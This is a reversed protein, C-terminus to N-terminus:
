VMLGIALLKTRISNALTIVTALDTSAAALTQQAVPATAFFGLKAQASISIDSGYLTLPKYVAGTDDFSLLYGVNALYLIQLGAGTWGTTVTSGTIRLTANIEVPAVPSVTFFGVRHNVTDVIFTTTDMRVPGVVDLMYSASPTLTGIGVNHISGGAFFASDVSLSGSAAIVTSGSAGAVTMKNPGINLSGDSATIVLKNTNVSVNGTVGLTGAIVTNGSTGAVTMKNPGINLSGDTGLVKFKDVNVAFNGSVDLTGIIATNGTITTPGGIQVGSNQIQAYAGSPAYAQWAAGVTPEQTSFVNSWRVADDQTYLIQQGWGTLGMAARIDALIATQIDDGLVDALPGMPLDLYANGAM